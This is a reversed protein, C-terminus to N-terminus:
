YGGGIKPLVDFVWKIPYFCLLNLFMTWFIASSFYAKLPLRAGQGLLSLLESYAYSSLLFAASVLVVLLAASPPSIEQTTIKRTVAYVLLVEVLFSFIHTGFALGCFIESLLGALFGLWLSEAFPRRIAAVLILLLLLQPFLQGQSRFVKVGASEILFLLLVYFFFYFYLKKM